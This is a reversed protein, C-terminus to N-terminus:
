RSRAKRQMEGLVSARACDVEIGMASTAWSAWFDRAFVVSHAEGSLSTWGLV